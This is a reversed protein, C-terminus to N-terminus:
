FGIPCISAKNLEESCRIKVLADAAKNELIADAGILWWDKAVRKKFEEINLGLRDADMKNLLHALAKMFGLAKEIESVSGSTGGSIQHQMLMSTELVYRVKCAQTISFAMSAALNSICIVHDFAKLQEIFLLGPIVQGGGSNIYLYYPKTKDSHQIDRIIRTLAQPEVETVLFTHNGPKLEVTIDLRNVAAATIIGFFLVVFIFYYRM